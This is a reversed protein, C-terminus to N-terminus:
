CSSINFIESQLFLSVLLGPFEPIFTMQITEPYKLPLELWIINDDMAQPLYQFRSLVQCLNQSNQTKPQWLMWICRTIMDTDQNANLKFPQKSIYPKTTLVHTQLVTQTHKCQTVEIQQDTKREFSVNEVMLNLVDLKLVSLSFPVSQICISPEVLDLYPRTM